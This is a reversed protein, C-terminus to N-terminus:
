ATFTEPIELTLEANVSIAPSGSEGIGVAVTAPTRAADTITYTVGEYVVTEAAARGVAFLLTTVALLRAATRKAGTTM